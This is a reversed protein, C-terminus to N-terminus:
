SISVYMINFISAILLLLLNKLARSEKTKWRNFAMTTKSSRKQTFISPLLAKWGRVTREGRRGVLHGEHDAEISSDSLDSRGSPSLDRIHSSGPRLMDM